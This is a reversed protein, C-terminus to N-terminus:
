LTYNTIRQLLLCLLKGPTVPEAQSGEKVALRYLRNDSIDSYYVIGDHVIAAAGGYEHVGTRVDVEKKVIERGTKSEVLVSRGKEAPRDELHYIM